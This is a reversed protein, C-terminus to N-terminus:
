QDRERADLMLEYAAELAIVANGRKVHDVTWIGGEVVEALAALCHYHGRAAREKIDAIRQEINM